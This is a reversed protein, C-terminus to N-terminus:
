SPVLYVDSVKSLVSTYKACCKATTNVMEIRVAGCTSARRNQEAVGAGALSVLAALVVCRM